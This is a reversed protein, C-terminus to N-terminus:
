TPELLVVFSKRRTRFTTILEADALRKLSRRDLWTAEHIMLGKGALYRIVDSTASGRELSKPQLHARALLGLLRLLVHGDLVLTGNEDTKDLWGPLWLHHPIRVPDGIAHPIYVSPKGPDPVRVVLRLEALLKLAGQVALRDARATSGLAQQALDEISLRETANSYRASRPSGGPVDAYARAWRYITLLVRLPVGRGYTLKRVTTLNLKPGARKRARPAYECAVCSSACEPPNASRFALYRPILV